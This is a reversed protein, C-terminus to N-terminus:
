TPAAASRFIETALEARQQATLRKSDDAGCGDSGPSLIVAAAVVPGALPGRGM